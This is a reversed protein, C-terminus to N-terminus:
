GPNSALYNSNFFDITQKEISPWSKLLFHRLTGEEPDVEILQKNKVKLNSFFKESEDKDIVEDERSKFMILPINIDDIEDLINPSNRIEYLFTYFSNGRLLGYRYPFAYGNKSIKNEEVRNFFNEDEFFAKVKPSIIEKLSFYKQVESNYGTKFWWYYSVKLSTILNTISGFKFKKSKLHALLAILGGTSHAFFGINSKNKFSYEGDLFDLYCILDDVSNSITWEGEVGAHGRLNYKMFGWGNRAFLNEDVEYSRHCYGLGHVFVIIGKCEELNYPLVLKGKLLLNKQVFEFKKIICDDRDM